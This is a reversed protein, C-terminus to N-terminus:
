KRILVKGLKIFPKEIFSYSYQSVFITFMFPVVVITYKYVARDNINLLGESTLIYSIVYLFIMHSCYMSYSIKGMYMVLKNRVVIDYPKIFVKGLFNSSHGEFVESYYCYVWIFLGLTGLFSKTVIIYILVLTFISATIVTLEKFNNKKEISKEYFFYSLIGVFFYHTYAFFFSRHGMFEKVYDQILFFFVALAAFRLVSKSLLAILFPNVFLVPTRFNSEV